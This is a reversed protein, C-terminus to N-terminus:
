SQVGIMKGAMIILKRLARSGTLHHDLEDVSHLSCVLLSFFFRQGAVDDVRYISLKITHKEQECQKVTLGAYKHASQYKSM